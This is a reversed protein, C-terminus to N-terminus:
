QAKEVQGSAPALKPTFPLIGGKSSILFQQGDPAVVIYLSINPNSPVLDSTTSWGVATTKSNGADTCAALGIALIGILILALAYGIALKM